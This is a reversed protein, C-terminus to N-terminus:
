KFSRNVDCICRFLIKQRWAIANKERIERACYLSPCVIHKNKISWNLWEVLSPRMIFPHIFRALFAFSFFFLYYQMLWEIEIKMVVISNTFPSDCQGNPVPCHIIFGHYATTCTENPWGCQAMSRSHRMVIKTAAIKRQNGRELHWEEPWFTSPSESLIISSLFLKRLLIHMLVNGDNVSILQHSKNEIEDYENCTTDTHSTRLRQSKETQPNNLNRRM